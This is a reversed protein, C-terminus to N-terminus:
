GPDAEQGEPPPGDVVLGPGVLSGPARGTAREGDLATQLVLVAAVQDVVQRQRRGPVGAGRLAHQAGVTSLREDVLRVPVPAVLRALAEAYGRALGAARRQTGDLSLPLGVVVEVADREAAEAAVERLDVGGAEDRVLTRIGSALLGDPDSAALGVRVSGVDVGLRVGRRFRPGQSM